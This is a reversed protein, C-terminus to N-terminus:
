GVGPGLFAPGESSQPTSLTHTGVALRFEAHARRSLPVVRNCPL